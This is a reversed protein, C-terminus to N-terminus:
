KPIMFSGNSPNYYPSSTATTGGSVSQGFPNDQPNGTNEIPFVSASVGADLLAQKKDPDIIPQGYEYGMTKKFQYRNATIKSSLLKAVEDSVGQFQSKSFDAALVKEWGSIGSVTNEGYATAIETALANIDSRLKLVKPDGTETLLINQINNLKKITGADLADSNTKFDALHGLTTNIANQTIAVKGNPNNWGKQFEFRVKNNNVSFTPDIATAEQILKNIAQTGQIGRSKVLDSLLADGNVLQAVSSKDDEPLSNFQLIQQPTRSQLFGSYDTTLNTNNGGQANKLDLSAKALDVKAKQVQLQKLPDGGANGVAEYLKTQAEQATIKGSIFDNNVSDMASLITPTSAGNDLIAKHLDTLVSQVTDLDKQKKEAAAKVEPDNANASAFKLMNDVTDQLPKFQNDLKDQITKEADSYLGQDLQATLALNAITSSDQRAAQNYTENNGQVTGGSQQRIADLRDRSAKQAVQYANYSRTAAERKADLGSSAQLGSRVQGQTDLQTQAALGRDIYQQYTSKAPVVPPPNTANGNNDTTTGIPPPVAQSTPTPSTVPPPIVVPSTNQGISSTGIPNSMYGYSGPNSVLGVGPVSTLPPQTTTPTPM